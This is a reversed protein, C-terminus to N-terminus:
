CVAPRRLDPLVIHSDVDICSLLLQQALDDITEWVRETHAFFSLLQLFEEAALTTLVQDYCQYAQIQKKLSTKTNFTLEGKNRKVWACFSSYGGYTQLDEIVLDVSSHASDTTILYLVRSLNVLFQTKQVDGMAKYVTINVLVVIRKSYQKGRNLLQLILQRNRPSEQNLLIAPVIIPAPQLLNKDDYMRSLSSALYSKSFANKNTHEDGLVVLQQKCEMTNKKPRKKLQSITVDLLYFMILSCSIAIIFALMWLTTSRQIQTYSFLLFPLSFASVLAFLIAYLTHTISTNM